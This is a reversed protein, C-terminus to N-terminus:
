RAKRREHILRVKEVYGTAHAPDIRPAHGQPRATDYGLRKMRKAVEDVFFRYDEEVFWDAWNGSSGTRRIREASGPLVFDRRLPFGLYDELPEVRWDVFDEYALLHFGPFRKLMAIPLFAMDRARSAFRGEHGVIPEALSFLEILSVCAPDEEKRKLAALFPAAREPEVEVIRTAAMWMLRSVVTDRPDRVIMIRRGFTEVVPGADRFSKMRESLVKVVGHSADFAALREPEKPEFLRAFAQGHHREASQVVCHFLASTGSKGAGLILIRSLSSTNTVGDNNWRKCAM